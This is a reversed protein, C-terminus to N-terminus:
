LFSDQMYRPKHPLKFLTTFIELVFKILQSGEYIKKVCKYTKEKDEAKNLELELHLDKQEKGGGVCPRKEKSKTNLDVDTWSPKNKEKGIKHFAVIWKRLCKCHYIYNYL